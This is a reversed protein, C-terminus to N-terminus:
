EKTETETAGTLVTDISIKMVLLRVAFFHVDNGRCGKGFVGSNGEHLGIM